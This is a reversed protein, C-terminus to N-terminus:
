RSERQAHRRITRSPCGALQHMETPRLAYHAFEDLPADDPLDCVPLILTAIAAQNM